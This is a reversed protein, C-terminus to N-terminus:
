MMCAIAELNKGSSFINQLTQAGYGTQAKAYGHLDVVPVGQAVSCSACPSPRRCSSGTLSRPSTVQQYIVLQAGLELNHEFNAEFAARLDEWGPAVSGVVTGGDTTGFPGTGGTSAVGRQRQPVRATKRRPKQRM